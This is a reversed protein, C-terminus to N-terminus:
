PLVATPVPATVPATVPAPAFTVVPEGGELQVDLHGAWSEDDRDPFDERWHSGRIEERTWAAELLARAVTLLNTTEWTAV